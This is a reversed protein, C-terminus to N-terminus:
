TPAGLDREVTWGDERERWGGDEGRDRIAQRAGAEGNRAFQDVGRNALEDALENGAVGSHGKVWRWEVTRHRAMEADLAMWHARNKVPQKSATKWGRKKWGHIWSTIGDMVYKSDTHVIVDTARSFRRLGEIAATLEMINNTTHPHGGWLFVERRESVIWVGWGGPGPNRKCAGDTWIEVSATM